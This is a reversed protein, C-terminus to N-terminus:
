LSVCANQITTQNRHSHVTSIFRQKHRWAFSFCLALFAWSALHALVCKMLLLRQNCVCVCGSGGGVTVREDTLWMSISYMLRWIWMLSRPRDAASGWQPTRHVARVRLVSSCTYCLSERCCGERWTHGMREVAHYFSLHARVIDQRIKM